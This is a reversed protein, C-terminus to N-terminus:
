LITLFIIISLLFCQDQPLSAELLLLSPPLIFISPLVRLSPDRSLLPTSITLLVPHSIPCPPVTFSSCFQQAPCLKWSLSHCMNRTALSHPSPLASHSSPCLTQCLYGTPIKIGMWVQIRGYGYGHGTPVPKVLNPRLYPYPYTVWITLTGTCM